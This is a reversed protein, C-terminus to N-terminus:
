VKTVGDLLNLNTYFKSFTTNPVEYSGGTLNVINVNMHTDHQKITIDMDLSVSDAGATYLSNIIDSKEIIRDPINNIHSILAQKADEETIPGSFELSNITVVALPM